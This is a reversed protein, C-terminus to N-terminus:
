ESTYLKWICWTTIVGYSLYKIRLSRYNHNRAITDNKIKSVTKLVAITDNNIEQAFDMPNTGGAGKNDHAHKFDDKTHKNSPEIFKMVYNHILTTHVKRFDLLNVLSEHYLGILTNDNSNLIDSSFKSYIKEIYTIFDRHYVPMYNRMKRLFDGGHKPHEINFLIDLVPILSSQAASGGNHKIITNDITIGNPLYKNNSGSLYIRILNFFKNTNCHEYMRKILKTNNATTEKICQLLKKTENYSANDPDYTAIHRIMEGSTGELTIMIKYFWAETIDGTMLYNTNINDLNFPMKENIIHWNWLDCCAHTFSPVIGLFTCVELLPKSIIKPIVSYNKADEVGSCWVYRNVTMMLLSYLHQKEDLKINKTSHQKEDYEPLNGIIMRFEKANTQKESLNDAVVQLYLFKPPLIRNCKHPLFGYKSLQYRSYKISSVM